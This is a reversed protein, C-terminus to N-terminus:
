HCLPMQLSQFFLVKHSSPLQHRQLHLRLTSSTIMDQSTGSATSRQSWVTLQSLLLRPSMSPLQPQDLLLEPQSGKQTSRQSFASSMSSPRLIGIRSMPKVSTSQAAEVPETRRRPITAISQRLRLCQLSTTLAAPLHPPVRETITRPHSHLHRRIFLRRRRLPHRTGLIPDPATSPLLKTHTDLAMLPIVPATASEQHNLHTQLSEQVRALRGATPHLDLEM